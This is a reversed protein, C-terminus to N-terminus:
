HTSKASWSVRCLRSQVAPRGLAGRARCGDSGYNGGVAARIVAAIRSMTDAPEDVHIAFSDWCGSEQRTLTVNLTGPDVPTLTFEWGDRKM